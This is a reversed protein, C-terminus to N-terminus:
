VDIVENNSKLYRVKKGDVVKFGVRDAKNTQPNMIALNSVDIFAEQEVIGGPFDKNPNPKKHKKVLNIGEVKAKNDIVRLVRGTSGKDKGALVVVTDGTKIKKMAM